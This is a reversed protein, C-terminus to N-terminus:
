RAPSWAVGAIASSTWTLNSTRSRTSSGSRTTTRGKRGPRTTSASSATGTGSASSPGPRTTTDPADQVPKRFAKGIVMALRGTQEASLNMEVVTDQVADAAAKRLARQQDSGLVVATLKRRGADALLGVLWAGLDDAVFVV